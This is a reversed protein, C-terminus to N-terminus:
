MVPKAGISRIRFRFILGIFYQVTVSCKHKSSVPFLLRYPAKWLPAILPHNDINPKGDPNTSLPEYFHGFCDIAPSLHDCDNMIMIAISSIGANNGVVVTGERARGSGKLVKTSQRTQRGSDLTRLVVARVHLATGRWSSLAIIGFHRIILELM